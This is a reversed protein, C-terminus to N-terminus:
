HKWFIKDAMKESIVVSHVENFANNSNGAIFHLSFLKFFSSDVFNGDEYNEKDGLTFLWQAGWYMRSAEKIEPM